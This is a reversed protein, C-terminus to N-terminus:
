FFLLINFKTFSVIQYSKFTQSSELKTWDLGTKDLKTWGLPPCLETPDSKSRLNWIKAKLFWDIEYELNSAQMRFNKIKSTKQCLDQPKEGLERKGKITMESKAWGQDLRTRGQRIRDLGTWRIFQILQSWSKCTHWRVVISRWNLLKRFYSLADHWITHQWFGLEPVNCKVWMVYASWWIKCFLRFMYPYRGTLGCIHSFQGM